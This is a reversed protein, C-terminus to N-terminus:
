PIGLMKMKYYEIDSEKEKVFTGVTRVGNFNFCIFLQRKSIKEALPSFFNSPKRVIGTRYVTLLDTLTVKNKYYHAIQMAIIPHCKFNNIIINIDLSADVYKKNCGNCKYHPEKDPNPELEITGSGSGSTPGAAGSAGGGIKKVRDSIPLKKISNAGCFPCENSTEM